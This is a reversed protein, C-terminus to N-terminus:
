ARDDSLREITDKMDGATVRQYLTDDNVITELVQIDKRIQHNLTLPDEELIVFDVYKGPEISGKIEEDFNQWAADITVSRLAEMPKIRQDPGIVENSRSLRNVASWVAQLPSMPVIYSDLHISFPVDRDITWQLPSMNAAR